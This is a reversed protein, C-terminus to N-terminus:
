RPMRSSLVGRAELDDITAADLGLITELVERNHEGRWAPRGRAGTDAGSFRWPSNPIRLTGGSRDDVEVIAGRHRAWESGALEHVPRVVGMALENAALAAELAEPDPLTSSWAALEDVLADYHELRAEVTAFRPDDALDKRGSAALYLEFTGKVVPSGPVISLRGDATPLAPARHPSFAQVDASQESGDILFHAHENVSLLTEAMAVDIAQGVGTHERQFLAALIASLCELATYLDGHSWPPVRAEGDGAADREGWTFGAEAQVAAAYCRRDSWPGSQGYGSISAFVLRPNESALTAYGLGIREMVGARFNELVVDATAALRRLLDLAEPHRIDLSINRKGCNQQAFYTAMSGARPMRFRTLDGEPPEIKIVDAGLDVLMRGCHPGALVRSFDLVRVGALPAPRSASVPEPM